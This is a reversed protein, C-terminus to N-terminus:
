RYDNGVRAEGREIMLSLMYVAMLLDLPEFGAVVQPVGYKEAIEQYPKLGIITSVHGPEIIGQIKLEGMGLIAELAPPIYRHCCLISFNEPPDRLLSIATSPATTEFGIAMFVVEKGTDRALKVADEISYVVRVDCGEGRAEALSIRPGPVRMMDGYTALTKGKEALTIAMEIERPTTVCVPCGPGQRIDIGREQLLPELGYRVLTDQHTGCVHMLLVDLDMAELRDLIKKALGKDRYRYM